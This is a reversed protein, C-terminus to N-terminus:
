QKAVKQNATSGGMVEVAGKMGRKRRRAGAFRISSYDHRSEVVTTMLLVLSLVRVGHRLRVVVM